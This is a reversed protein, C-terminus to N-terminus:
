KSFMLSFFSFPFFLFFPPVPIEASGPYIWEVWEVRIWRQTLTFALRTPTHAPPPPDLADVGPIWEVTTTAHSTTPPPPSTLGGTAISPRRTHSPFGPTLDLSPRALLQPPRLLRRHLRHTQRTRRDRFPRVINGWSPPPPRIRCGAELPIFRDHSPRRARLARAQRPPQTFLSLAHALTSCCACSLVSVM